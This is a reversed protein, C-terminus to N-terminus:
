ISCVQPKPRGFVTPFSATPAEDGAFGAKITSSGNDIVVFAPELEEDKVSAKDGASKGKPDSTIAKNILECEAPKDAM